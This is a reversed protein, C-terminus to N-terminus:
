RPIGIYLESKYFYFGCLHSYRYYHDNSSVEVALLRDSWHMHHVSVAIKKELQVLLIKLESLFDAYYIWILAVKSNICM